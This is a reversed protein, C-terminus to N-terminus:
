LGPGPAGRGGGACAIAGAEAGAIPGPETEYMAGAEVGAIPGPEAEYM